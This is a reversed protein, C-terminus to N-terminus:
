LSRKSLSCPDKVDWHQVGKVGNSARGLEIIENTNISWGNTGKSRLCLARNEDCGIMRNM